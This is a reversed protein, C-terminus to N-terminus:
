GSEKNARRAYKKVIPPRVYPKGTGQNRPQENKKQGKWNLKQRRKYFLLLLLLCMGYM